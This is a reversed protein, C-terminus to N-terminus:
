SRNAGTLLPSYSPRVAPLPPNLGGFEAAAHVIRGDVMTLVSEIGPIRTDPVTLYDETLVALDAFAGPTLTGKHGNENSSSASGQTLLRLAEVRDLTNDPRYLRNGGLTRGTTIWYLATWVNDSAVRTADTGLGVPIGSRLLRRIPPTHAASPNRTLAERGHRSFGLHSLQQM